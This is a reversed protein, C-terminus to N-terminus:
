QVRPLASIHRNAVLPFGFLAAWACALGQGSFHLAAPRIFGTGGSQM